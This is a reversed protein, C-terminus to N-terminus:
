RSYVSNYSTHRLVGLAECLGQFLRPYQYGRYYSQLFLRISQKLIQCVFYTAKRHFRNGSLSRILESARFSFSSSM